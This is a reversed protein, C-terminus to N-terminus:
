IAKTPLPIRKAFLGIVVLTALVAFIGFGILLGNDSASKLLVASYSELTPEFVFQPTAANADRKTKFSNLTTWIFPLTSYLVVAWLVLHLGLRALPHTIPRM